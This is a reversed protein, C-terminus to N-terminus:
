GQGGRRHASDFWAEARDLAHEDAISPRFGVWGPGRGSPAVDPTRAAAAAVAPDLAFEAATGDASLTAFPRGARAWSVTGAADETAEVDDLEAAAERLLDALNM